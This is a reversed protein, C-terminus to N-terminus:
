RYRWLYMERWVQLGSSASGTQEYKCWHKDGSGRTRYLAYQVNTVGFVRLYRSLYLAISSGDQLMGFAILEKKFKGTQVFCVDHIYYM